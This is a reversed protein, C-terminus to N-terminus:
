YNQIFTGYIRGGARIFSYIDTKGGTSQIPAIGNSWLIPAESCSWGVTYTGGNYVVVTIQVGNITNIMNFTTNATLSKIKCNGNNWDVTTALLSDQKAYIRGITNISTSHFEQAFGVLSFVIILFTIQKM